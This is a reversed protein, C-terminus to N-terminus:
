GAEHQARRRKLVVATGIGLFGLPIVGVMLVKLLSATQGSISLYNYNLSKSRIAMADREGVLESLANMALDVNAGSSLANYMDELFAASSFWVIEGDNECAIKVALAFPGDTDGDEKEYTTLDYGAAKSFAADSTSLLTTVGEAEDSVTLGQAIPMNPYYNEEMLADTIGDSQMEALLVYPQVTYHEQSDEVVVGDATTVGYDALLASLNDLSADEVPGAIILLRGGGAAYDALKTKEEESIDSQPAYILVADAEEPVSDSTLLSFQTTEINEKAIQDAFTAPLAQEGHGELVYLEPLDDTVVYDIASTLAGEGDFSTTYSYSYLDSDTVYIDEYAIYRSREGCEVILSNNAVDEDTYQEAFTPYVDPNKKEVHIHDSLSEYQDLLREIVADEEDAQVIWYITVDDELASAVAKTNSTVSYLKSASIDYQTLNSPLASVAINVLICIALVIATVALSYTGGRFANRGLLQPPQQSRIKELHDKWKM